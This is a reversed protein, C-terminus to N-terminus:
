GFGEVIKSPVRGIDAPVKTSSIRKEIIKLQEKSLKNNNLLCQKMIWKGIGLFLYHMLDVVIFKVPDFYKLRYLESWRVGTESVHDDREQKNTCNLCERVADFYKTIDVLNFWEDM